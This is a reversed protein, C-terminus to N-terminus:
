SDTNVFLLVQHITQITNMMDDYYGPLCFAYGGTTKQDLEVNITDLLDTDPVASEDISPSNQKPEWGPIRAVQFPGVALM